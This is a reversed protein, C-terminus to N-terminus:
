SERLPSSRFILTSVMDADLAAMFQSAGGPLTHVQDLGYNLNGAKFHHPKGPIKERAMYYLNPNTMAIQNCSDELTASQGDDLVIVRFREMPYDQDLAGRVTDLVVEDEEGCCTIFVDVTPCENGILRLKARGRKKLAMMTWGNHMLSPIATVVEIGVFVWAGAFSYGAANQAMIICYIRLGLYFLYLATNAFTLLPTFKFVFRKWGKWIDVDDRDDLRAISGSGTQVWEKAFGPTAPTDVLNTLSAASQLQSNQYQELVSIQTLKMAVM